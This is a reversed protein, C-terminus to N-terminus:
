LSRRNKTVADLISDRSPLELIIGNNKEKRKFLGKIKDVIVM